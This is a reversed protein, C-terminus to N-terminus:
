TRDSRILAYVAHDVYQGRLRQVERLIGELKFGLREPIRRSPHNETAVHIQIRHLDLAEFAYETLVRVSQTMIGLGMHREDLWYGICAHGNPWDIDHLDLAGILRGRRRIAANFSVHDYADKEAGRLFAHIANADVVRDIWTMWPKLHERNRAVAEYLENADEVRLLRIDTEEDIRLRFDVLAASIRPPDNLSGRNPTSHSGDM